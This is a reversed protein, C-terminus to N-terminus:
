VKAGDVRRVAVVGPRPWGGDPWSSPPTTIGRRAMAEFREGEVSTEGPHQVAAFLARQDPTHLPGCFECGVPGTMFRKVARPAMTDVLDTVYIGDNCDTFVDTMGDTTFWVRGVDDFAVNDPCAFRDGAFTQAGDEWVSVNTTVGRRSTVKTDPAAPDGALAFIDWRFTEAGCDGDAEEIRLIQGTLNPQAAGDPGNRRPNGPREEATTRNNTLAALIVGTGRWDVDTVPEVDEPRDMPTAGLLRAAERARVAVDGQDTFPIPYGAATAAANATQPTLLLWRGTGDAELRAAYLAGQDLLDRNALRNAPDFRGTTVFKYIFEDPQDDGAYVAVRGDRTLATNACEGKRRGMSTRKRPTWTPDYPDIELTWGYLLPGDPNRALDFRAPIHPRSQVRDLRYGYSAADAATRPAARAAVLEPSESQAAFYFDFNEEASLYTGWPTMGGACNALTGACVGGDRVAEGELTRTREIARGLAPHAAASGAYIVETYASVRRNLGRGPAPDRVAKWAGDRGRQVVVVACGMGAHLVGMQRADPAGAGLGPFMTAPTVYEHNAAMILTDGGADRRPSWRAPYLALMDNNFGFRREQATRDFTPDNVDFAADGEYLPDGWAIVLDTVYGDPVVVADTNSAAVAEFTRAAAAEGGPRATVCGAAGLLGLGATGGLMARRSLRAAVLASFHPTEVAPVCGPVVDGDTHPAYSFSQDDPSM